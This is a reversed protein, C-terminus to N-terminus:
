TTEPSQFCGRVCKGRLKTITQHSWLRPDTMNKKKKMMVDGCMCITCLLSMDFEVRRKLLGMESNTWSSYALLMDSVGCIPTWLQTQSRCNFCGIIEVQKWKPHFMMVWTTCFWLSCILAVSLFSSKCCSTVRKGRIHKITVGSLCWTPSM